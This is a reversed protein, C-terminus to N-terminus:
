AGAARALVDDLSEMPAIREALGNAEATGDQTFSALQGATFPLAPLMFKELGGLVFALPAAPVTLGRPKKGAFTKRLRMLLERMTVVDPGGLDYASGDFSPDSALLALARVLDDVSVPQVKAKGGGFLPVFPAGALKTLAQLVPADPGVIITPRVIAWSLGSERVLAEGAIKSRAYPYRRVDEFKAAISSVFIFREVGAAKAEDILMRTGEVNILEYGKPAAKGTLAAVHVVTSHGVMAERYSEPAFLDGEVREVSKVADGASEPFPSGHRALATMRDHASVLASLLRSGVYGTAGTVFVGPM